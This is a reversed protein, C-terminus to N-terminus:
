RKKKKRKAAPANEFFKKKRRPKSEASKGAGSKEGKGGRRGRSGGQGGNGRGGTDDKRRGGGTKFVKREGTENQRNNKMGVIEFDIAREDKNVNSVRITIEDGIRFVKGTREGIMALHREDFRYYDDNMVSVHVLGEITNSLEVFMGFSTVSGIIGDYEEGIKDMMFEAKKLDDTEREADVARRERESTHKAIEPLVAGWKARTSPDLKGEILYTRILRHVILDPYRRIPSTFHTYYDASLGFHGLSEPDYKAQQMSRLMVTSIVMEEPKGEVAEIIEQLARPHVSNASGKVIYGFNTIFEFFRRLKEEKPDEHIRYIFPVDMWHFHEAVTENAVLMFEEILKEAVSRERLVVETPHGEDDVLVKAEKFDFDIAGRKMRKNRLVQALQEMDEFMPVLPEYRSRLEEDKDVLIRNVDSYTMRETTKIVSEFIEHKVVTGEANIEMDCSLTFRNIKPNLSCIGNSLRHPIMPIVRDVLYVSTGRDAAEVDIPSGETVYYSVDAIHVGLKYNGNDLRTVTVADDLDKADAGDITVIMQDRLDRRNGIQDEEITDPVSNAQEIVEEPFPVAIGHKHIVSLIDVGPDNKHGLIEIVEGEASLGGQPYSVLKVVVKHGEVAGMSAGKPIFIDNAIKKDDAIVFGFSKSETYTGVIEHIGREVIKEITGERRSGSKEESVRALVIDGHMANKTESPPIFIDDMGPEDPVVFAFGKAHGTLKGRVLNMKEPLGYRNNRTRVVLGKEEMHVLAKVFDKFESSDNIGFAEELEQVTLPKYSSEKMYELLREVHQQIVEDM